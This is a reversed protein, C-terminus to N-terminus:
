TLQKRTFATGGTITMKDWMDWRDMRMDESAGHCRVRFVRPRDPASLDDWWELTEVPHGCVACQVVPCPEPHRIM